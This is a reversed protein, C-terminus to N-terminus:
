SSELRGALYIARERAAQDPIFPRSDSRMTLFPVVALFWGRGEEDIMKEPLSALAEAIDFFLEESVHVSGDQVWVKTVQAVAGGPKDIETM